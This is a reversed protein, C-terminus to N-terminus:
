RVTFRLSGDHATGAASARWRITYVGPGLGPLPITYSPVEGVATVMMPMALGDSGTVTVEGLRAPPSFRLVLADVPGRVVAGDAPTSGHLISATAGAPAAGPPAGPPSAPVPACAGLVGIVGLVAVMALARLHIGM